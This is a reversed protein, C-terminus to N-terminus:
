PFDDKTKGLHQRTFYSIDARSFIPKISALNGKENAAEKSCPLDNTAILFVANKYKNEHERYLETRVMGGHGELLQKTVNLNRRSFAHHCSFEECVVLQEKLHPLNRSQVPLYTEGFAIEESAFIGRIRRVFESKGCSALGYLWV